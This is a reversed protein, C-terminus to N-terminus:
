RGGGPPAPMRSSTRAVAPPAKMVVFGARELHRVLREAAIQAMFDDAHHVRKRGEYCLAFALADAIEDPQAPWLPPTVPTTGDYGVSFFLVLIRERTRDIYQKIKPPRLSSELQHSLITFFILPNLNTPGSPSSGLVVLNFTEHEVM